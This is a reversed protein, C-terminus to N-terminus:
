TTKQCTNQNRAERPTKSGTHRPHMTPSPPEVRLLCHQHPIDELYDLAPSSGGLVCSAPAPSPELGQTQNGCATKYSPLLAQNLLLSPFETFERCQIQHFTLKDPVMLFCFLACWFCVWVYYVCLITLPHAPYGLPRTLKEQRNEEEGDGARPNHM